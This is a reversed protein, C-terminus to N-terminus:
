GNPNKCGTNYSMSWFIRDDYCSACFGSRVVVVGEKKCAKCKVQKKDDM